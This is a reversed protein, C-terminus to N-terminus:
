SAWHRQDIESACAADMIGSFGQSLLKTRKAADANKLREFEVLWVPTLFGCRLLFWPESM